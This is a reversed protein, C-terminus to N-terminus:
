QLCFRKSINCCILFGPPPTWWGIGQVMTPSHSQTYTRPNVPSASLQGLKYFVKSKKEPPLNRAIRPPSTGEQEEFGSGLSKRSWYRNPLHLPTVRRSKKNMFHFSDIMLQCIRPYELSNTTPTTKDPQGFLSGLGKKVDIGILCIYPLVEGLIKTTITIFM